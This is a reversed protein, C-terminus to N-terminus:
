AAGAKADLLMVGQMGRKETVNERERGGERERDRERERERERESSERERERERRSWGQRQPADAAAVHGGAHRGAACDARRRIEREREM